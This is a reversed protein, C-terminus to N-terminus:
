DESKYIFDLSLLIADARHDNEDFYFKLYKRAKDHLCRLRQNEMAYWKADHEAKELKQTLEDILIDQAKLKATLEKVKRKINDAQYRERYKEPYKKRYRQVYERRKEKSIM